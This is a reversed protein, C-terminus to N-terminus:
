FTLKVQLLNKFCIILSRAGGDMEPPPYSQVSPRATRLMVHYTRHGLVHLSMIDREALRVNFVVSLMILPLFVKDLETLM